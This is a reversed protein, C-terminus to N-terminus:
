SFPLHPRLFSLRSVCPLMVHLCFICKRHNVWWGLFASAMLCSSPALSPVSWGWRRGLFCGGQTQVRAQLLMFNRHDQGRSTCGWSPTNMQKRGTKCLWAGEELEQRPRSPSLPRPFHPDVGSFRCLARLELPLTDGAM